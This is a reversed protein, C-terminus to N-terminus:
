ALKHLRAAIFAGILLCCVGFGNRPHYLLYKIKKFIASPTDTVILPLLCQKRHDNLGERQESVRLRVRLFIAVKLRNKQSHAREGPRGAVGQHRIRAVQHLERGAEGTAPIEGRGDLPLPHVDSGEHHIHDRKPHSLQRAISSKHSQRVNAVGFLILSAPARGTETRM